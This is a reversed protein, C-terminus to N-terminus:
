PARVVHKPKWRKFRGHANASEVVYGTILRSAKANYLVLVCSPRGAPVIRPLVIGGAGLDTLTAALPRGDELGVFLRATPHGASAHLDELYEEPTTEPRWEGGAVRKVLHAELSTLRDGPALYRGPTRPDPEGDVDFDLATRPGTSFPAVAMRALIIEREGPLFGFSPANARLTILSDEDVRACRIVHLFPRAVPSM